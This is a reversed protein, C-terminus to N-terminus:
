RGFQRSGVTSQQVQTQTRNHQVNQQQQSQQPFTPRNFSREPTTSSRMPGREFSTTSHSDHAGGFSRNSSQPFSNERGTRIDSPNFAGRWYQNQSNHGARYNGSSNSSQQTFGNNRRDRIGWDNYNPNIGKYFGDSHGLRREGNYGYYMDRMGDGSWFTAPHWNRYPSLDNHGRRWLGGQYTIYITPREYYYYDRSYHSFIPYYWSSRYWRLPRFFYDLNTYSQYQWDYLVYRLDEDRYNWYYGYLDHPSNVQMFYDLNIQYVRDYQEPTLNLEYAMKDTLYWARERAEDYNLASVSSVSFLTFLLGISLYRM